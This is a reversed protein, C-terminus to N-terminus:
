RSFDVVLAKILAIVDTRVIEQTSDKVQEYSLVANATKPLAKIELSIAQPIPALEKGHNWSFNSSSVTIGAAHLEAIIKREINQLGSIFETLRQAPDSM